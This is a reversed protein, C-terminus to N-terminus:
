NYKPVDADISWTIDTAAAGTVNLLVLNGSVSFDADWSSVDEDAVKTTVGVQVVTASGDAGNKFTGRIDFGNSDGASGNGATRKAGIVAHLVVEAGYPINWSQVLTVTADTTKKFTM